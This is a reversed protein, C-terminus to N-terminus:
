YFNYKRGQVFQQPLAPQGSPWSRHTQNQPPQSPEGGPCPEKKAGGTELRSWNSMEPRISCARTALNSEEKHPLAKATSQLSSYGELTKRWTQLKQQTLREDRGGRSRMGVCLSQWSGRARLGQEPVRGTKFACVRGACVKGPNPQLVDNKHISSTLHSLSLLRNIHMVPSSCLSRSLLKPQKGAM